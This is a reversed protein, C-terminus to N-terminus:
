VRPLSCFASLLFSTLLLLLSFFRALFPLSPLASPLPRRLSLLACLASLLSSLASLLSSIVSRHVSLQLCHDYLVRSAILIVNAAKTRQLSPFPEPTAGRFDAGACFLSLTHSQLRVPLSLFLFLPSIPSFIVQNNEKEGLVIFPIPEGELLVKTTM